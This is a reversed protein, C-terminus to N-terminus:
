LGEGLMEQPAIRSVTVETLKQKDLFTAIGGRSQLISESFALIIFHHKKRRQVM